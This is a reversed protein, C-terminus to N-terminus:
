PVFGPMPMPMDGWGGGAKVRILYEAWQLPRPLFGTQAALLHLEDVFVRDCATEAWPCLDHRMCAADFADVPPLAVAAPHGPGCWNGYLPLCGFPDAQAAGAPLLLATIVGVLVAVIQLILGTLSMAGQAFILLSAM